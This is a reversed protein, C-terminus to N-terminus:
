LFLLRSIINYKAESRRDKPQLQTLSAYQNQAFLDEGEEEEGASATSVTLDRSRFGHNIAAESPSCDISSSGVSLDEAASESDMAHLM